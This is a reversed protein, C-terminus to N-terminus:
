RKERKHHSREMGCVVCHSDANSASARSATLQPEADQKVVLNNNVEEENDGAAVVDVDDMWPRKPGSTQDPRKRNNKRLQTLNIVRRKQDVHLGIARRAAVINYLLGRCFDPCSCITKPFWPVVRPEVSLTSLKVNLSIAERQIIDAARENVTGDVIESVEELGDDYASHAISAVLNDCIRSVIDEPSIIPQIITTDRQDEYVNNLELRLQYKSIGYRLVTDLTIPQAGHRRRTGRELGTFAESSHQIVGLTQLSM